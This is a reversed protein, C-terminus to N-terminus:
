PIVPLEIPNMTYSASCTGGVTQVVVDYFGSSLNSFINSSQFDLGNNISYELTATGASATIIIEGDNYGCSPTYTFSVDTIDVDPADTINIPNNPWVAECTTFQSRVIVDYDGGALDTFLGDGLQWTSGNDISYELMGGINGGSALIEIEGLDGCAPPQTVIVDDITPTVNGDITVPNSVYAVPCTEDNNRIFINYSNGNPLNFFINSPQWTSGGDISYEYPPTGDVGTITIIGTPPINCSPQTIDVDAVIPEEIYNFAITNSYVYDPCSSYRAGRRVLFDFGAGSLSWGASGNTTETGVPSWTVGNDLSLEFQYFITNGNGSGPNALVEFLPLTGCSETPSNPIISGPDTVNEDVTKIVINSYNYDSCLVHQIGRRYWTTISITTPDYDRGTAGNITTWTAGDDTSFEWIFAWADGPPANSGTIIQPDFAACETEDASITGGPPNQLIEVQISDEATCGNNDTVTVYYWTDVTPSVTITPGSEATSWLYSIGGSATLDTSSGVCIFRSPNATVNTTPPTCLENFESTRKTTGFDETATATISENSAIGSFSPSLMIFGTVDTTGNLSSVYIDGEEGDPAIGATRFFEFEIPTNPMGQFTLDFTVNGASNLYNSFKPKEINNQSSNLHLIGFSGINNISNETIEILDSTETRIGYLVTNDITNMSLLGGQSGSIRIGSNTNTITNSM